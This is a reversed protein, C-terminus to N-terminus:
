DEVIIDGFVHYFSSISDITSSIAKAFQLVSDPGVKLVDIVQVVMAHVFKM